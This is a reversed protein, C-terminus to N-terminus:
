LDFGELATWSVLFRSDCGSGYRQPDYCDPMWSYSRTNLLSRAPSNAFYAEPTQSSEGATIM